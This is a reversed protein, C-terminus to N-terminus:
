KQEIVKRIAEPSAGYNWAFMTAKASWGSRELSGVRKELRRVKALLVLLVISSSLLLLITM